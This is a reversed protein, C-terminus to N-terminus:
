SDPLDGSSSLLKSSNFFEIGVLMREIIREREREEEEEMRDKPRAKEIASLRELKVNTLVDDRNM